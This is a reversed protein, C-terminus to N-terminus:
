NSSAAPASDPTEADTEDQADPLDFLRPMTIRRDDDGPAFTFSGDAVEPALNWRGFQARYQPWGQRYPDTGVLMIPLPADESSAFWIQWDEDRQSFAIHDTWQGAVLTPGIYAAGELGELMDEGVSDRLMETIPLRLDYEERLRDALAGIGGTFPVSVYFDAEPAAITFVKGNYFYERVRDGRESRVHFGVGRALLTSGSHVFTIKERGDVVEDFTVFWDFSFIDQSTLFATGRETIEIARPEIRSEDAAVSSTAGIAFMASIIIGRM